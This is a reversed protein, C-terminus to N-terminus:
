NLQKMEFSTYGMYAGSTIQISKVRCEPSGKKCWSLMKALEPANGEIEMYIADDAASLVFGKIGLKNAQECTYKPYNIAKVNGKVTVKLHNIM